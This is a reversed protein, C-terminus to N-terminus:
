AVGAREAVAEDVATRAASLKAARARRMRHALTWGTETFTVWHTVQRHKFAALLKSPVRGYDLFGETKLKKLADHDAQNLRQGEMLGSYEVCTTEAYLLVSQEERSFSDLDISAATRRNAEVAHQDIWEKYGSM